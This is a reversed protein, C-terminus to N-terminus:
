EDNEVSIKLLISHRHPNDYSFNFMCPINFQHM